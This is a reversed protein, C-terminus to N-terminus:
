ASVLRALVMAPWDAEPLRAADIWVSNPLGRFRRLWTRQQKGYRRTRIKTQEFADELTLAGDLHRLVEDYGVAERAQRGLGSTRLARVEEVLGDAFMAKVRANMRRNITEVPWDIGVILTDPRATSRVESAWQTQHHSLPKGTLRFVEIARVTRRLDNPHIRAAAAPDVSLLEERLTPLATAELAARLTPDPDPGEFLGELLARVYLNTGGVVIPVRGRGRIAEITATARTLWEDVTFGDERPDAIDILHHPVGRREADSPKATGINMGRYVQMSDASVCEGGAPLTRALEISLATKGGATFGVIVIIPSPNDPIHM